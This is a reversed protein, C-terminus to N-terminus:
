AAPKLTSGCRVDHCSCAVRATRHFHRVDSSCHGTQPSQRAHCLAPGESSAHWRLSPPCTTMRHILWGLLFWGLLNLVYGTHSVIAEVFASEPMSIERRLMYEEGKVFTDLPTGDPPDLITNLWTIRERLGFASRVPRRAKSSAADPVACLLHLGGGRFYGSGGHDRKSPTTM